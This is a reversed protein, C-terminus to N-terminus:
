GFLLKFIITLINLIILPIRTVTRISRVLNLIQFNMSSQDVFGQESVNAGWGMKQMFREEHLVCVANLCLLSAEFLNWLTLM